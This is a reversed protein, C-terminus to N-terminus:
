NNQKYKAGILIFHEPQSTVPQVYYKNYLTQVTGTNRSDKCQQKYKVGILIFYEPQSTVPQVYYKNYLTQM